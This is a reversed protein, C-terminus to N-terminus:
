SGSGEHEGLLEAYARRAAQRALLRVLAILRPDLDTETPASSQHHKGSSGPDDTRRRNGDAM